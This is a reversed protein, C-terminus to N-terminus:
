VNYDDCSSCRTINRKMLNRACQFMKSTKVFYYM